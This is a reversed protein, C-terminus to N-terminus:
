ARICVQRPPNHGQNRKHLKAYEAMKVGLYGGLLLSATILPAPLAIVTAAIGIGIVAGPNKKWLSKIRDVVKHLQKPLVVRIIFGVGLGALFLYPQFFGFAVSALGVFVWKVVRKVKECRPSDKKHKKKNTSVPGAIRGGHLRPKICCTAM